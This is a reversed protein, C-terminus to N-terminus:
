NCLKFCKAKKKVILNNEKKGLVLGQTTLALSLGRSALKRYEFKRKAIASTSKIPLCGIFCM